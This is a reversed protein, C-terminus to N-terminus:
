PEPVLIWTKNLILSKMEDEMALLWKPYFMSKLAQKYSQPENEDSEHINFALALLSNVDGYRQTKTIKRRGRDRSLIYNRLDNNDSTNDGTTNTANDVIPDTNVGSDPSVDPIDAPAVIDSDPLSEVPVSDSMVPGEVESSTGEVKSSTDDSRPKITKALCPFESENFVVDRSVFVKFGPEDRLWM